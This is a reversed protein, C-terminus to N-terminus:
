NQTFKHGNPAGFYLATPYLTLSAGDVGDPKIKRVKM